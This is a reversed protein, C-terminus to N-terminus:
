YIKSVDLHTIFYAHNSKYEVVVILIVGSMAACCLELDLLGSISSTLFDASFAADRQSEAVQVNAGLTSHRLFEHTWLLPLWLPWPGAQVPEYIRWKAVVLVLDDVEVPSRQLTHFNSLFTVSISEKLNHFGTM